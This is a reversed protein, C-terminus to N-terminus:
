FAYTVGVVSTATSGVNATASGFSGIEAYTYMNSNISYTVGVAYQNYTEHNVQSSDPNVNVYSGYVDGMGYGYRAALGLYNATDETTEYKGTVTLNDMPTVTVAVGTSSKTNSAATNGRSDYGVAVSFMDTSYKIVAMPANGSNDGTSTNSTANPNTGKTQVAVQMELGSMSPSFYTITDGQSSGAAKATGLYEFQDIGDQIANNYITDHTGATVKGFDGKLGVFAQDLHSQNYATAAGRDEQEDAKFELEYKFFATLNDDVKSEGKVGLTSGNDEFNTGVGNQNSFAYQINGYFDVSSDEAAYASISAFAASTVALAVISKKM